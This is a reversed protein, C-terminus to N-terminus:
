LEKRQSIKHHIFDTAIIIILYLVITGMVLLSHYEIKKVGNKTVSFYEIAFMISGMSLAIFSAINVMIRPFLFKISHAYFAIWVSLTVSLLIALDYHANM